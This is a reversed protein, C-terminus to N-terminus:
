FDEADAQKLIQRITIAFCTMGTAFYIGIAMWWSLEFAVLAAIAALFAFFGSYIIGIVAMGFGLWVGLRSYPM